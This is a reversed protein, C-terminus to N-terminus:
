WTKSETLRAYPNALLPEFSSADVERRLRSPNLTTPEDARSVDWCRFEIIEDDPKYRDPSATDTAWVDRITDGVRAVAIIARSSLLDNVFRRVAAEKTLGSNSALLNSHSHWAFGDFGLTIDGYAGRRVLFRLLGDSTRYEEIIEM